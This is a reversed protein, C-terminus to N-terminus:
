EHTVATAAPAIRVMIASVIIGSANSSVRIQVPTIRVAPKMVANVRLRAVPHGLREPEHHVTVVGGGEVEVQPELDVADEHRPRHRLTRREVRGNPPEGYAHLVM